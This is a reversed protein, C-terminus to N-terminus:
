GKQPPNPDAAPKKAACKVTTGGKILIIENDAMVKIIPRNVDNKSLKSKSAELENKPLARGLVFELKM